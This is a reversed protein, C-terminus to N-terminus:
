KWDIRSTLGDGTVQWAEGTASDALWLNREYVFALAHSGGPELPRPSWAVRQPELGAAGEAPFLARRNSGDRDMVMLRYRSGESQSPFVAQLYALRFTKEGSPLEQQPSPLPYAFMGVQAGLVLANGGAPPLVALDFEQSEAPPRHLVAYLFSEDPAWAVAPVWAWDGFTQLPTMELLSVEEAASLDVLGIGGPRAYALRLGGPAWAFTTGWWGYLGGSNAELLPPMTRVFGTASFSLLGLDNNAQWGPAGPRPEVTSYAVTMVSGPKWDAFHVVNAVGLDIPPGAEEELPAAWLSNIATEGEERRTYLLWNGDPSLAFVRGDLREAGAVPRRNATTGEMVWANGDLLYALRGPIAIPTFSKQVGIMKIQPLPERVVVTKVVNSSVEEGNEYVKRITNEQLGNRGLQVWYEEGAPLSENRIVQNEYPLVVQEVVFEERLRILSVRSGETLVTYLPPETRDMSGLDIGAVALAQEVTSGAPAKVAYTKGDAEISVSIQGLSVQPAACGALM